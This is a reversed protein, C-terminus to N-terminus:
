SVKLKRLSYKPCYFVYVGGETDDAHVEIFYGAKFINRVTIERLSHFRNHQVRDGVTVRVGNVDRFSSVQKM